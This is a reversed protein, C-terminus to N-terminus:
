PNPVGNPERPTEPRRSPERDRFRDNSDREGGRGRGGRRGRGRDRSDGRPERSERSERVPRPSVDDPRLANAKGRMFRKFEYLIDFLDNWLKAFLALVMGTLLIGVVDDVIDMGYFSLYSDFAPAGRLMALVNIRALAAVIVGIIVSRAYLTRMNAFRGTLDIDGHRWYNSVVTVIMSAIALLRVVAGFSQQDM